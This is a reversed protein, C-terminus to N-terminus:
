STATLSPLSPSAPIGFAPMWDGLPRVVLVSFADDELFRASERILQTAASRPHPTSRLVAEIQPRRLAHWLGPSCLLVLDDPHVQLEFVDVTTAQSGGLCSYTQDRQPRQYITDPQLLGSDVLCSIVSHATTIQLLGANPRFLYTRCDGINVVHVVDGIVMVATVAAELATATRIGQERLDLDARLIAMKLLAAVGASKLSASSALSPVIEETIVEIVRRSATGDGTPTGIDEAVIFLGYPLLRGDAQAIGTLALVHGRKKQGPRHDYGEPMHVVRRGPAYTRETLLDAATRAAVPDGAAHGHPDNSTHDVAEIPMEHQAYDIPPLPRTSYRTVEPIAMEPPPAAAAVATDDPAEIRPDRVRSEGRGSRALLVVAVVFVFWAVGAAEVIQTTTVHMTAGHIWRHLAAFASAAKALLMALLSPRLHFLVAGAVLVLAGAVAMAWLLKRKM